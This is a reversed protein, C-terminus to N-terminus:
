STSFYVISEIAKFEEETHVNKVHTQGVMFDLDERNVTKYEYRDDYGIIKALKRRIEQM